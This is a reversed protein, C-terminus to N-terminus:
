EEQEEQEEEPRCTKVWAASAAVYATVVVATALGATGVELAVLAYCAAAFSITALVCDTTDVEKATSAYNEFKSSDLANSVQFISSDLDQTLKLSQIIINYKKFKTISSNENLLIQEFTRIANIFGNNKIDIALQNLKILDTEDIFGSNIAIDFNDDIFEPDLKIINEGFNYKVNNQSKLYNMIISNMEIESYITRDLVQQNFSNLQNKALSYSSETFENETIENNDNMTEHSKCSVFLILSALFVPIYPKRLSKM